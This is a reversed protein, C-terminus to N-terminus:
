KLIDVNEVLLVNVKEQILKEYIWQREEDSIETTETDSYNLTIYDEVEKEAVSIGEKKAISYFVMRQKVYSEAYDMLYSRYTAEDLGNQSLYSDLTMGYSEADQRISEISNEIYSDIEGEPYSILETNNVVYEWVYDYIYDNSLAEIYDDATSYGMENAFVDDKEPIVPRSISNVTVTFVVAKGALDESHYNTPFTLDLDVTEGVKTGLLGAEFGEIFSGSGILLDYDEATGGDFAVGDLKGCYDINVNDLTQVAGQDLEESEINGADTLDEYYAYEIGFIYEVGTTDIDIGKYEALTIYEDLNYNSMDSSNSKKCGTVLSFVVLVALIVSVLKKM